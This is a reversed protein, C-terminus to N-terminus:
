RWPIVGLLVGAATLILGITVVGMGLLLAPLGRRYVWSDGPLRSDRRGTPRRSPAPDTSRRESM